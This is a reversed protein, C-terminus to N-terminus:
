TNERALQQTGYRAGKLFGQVAPRKFQRYMATRVVPPIAGIAELALLPGKLSEPASHYTMGALGGWGLYPWLHGRSKLNKEPFKTLLDSYKQSLKEHEPYGAKAAMEDAKASVKARVEKLAQNLSNAAPNQKSFGAFDAEAGLQGEYDKLRRFSLAPTEGIKEYSTISPGELGSLKSGYTTQPIISKSIPAENM